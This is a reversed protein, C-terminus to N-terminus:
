AAVSKIVAFNIVCAANLPSSAHLNTIVIDFSGAAVAKTAVMITGTGAYTCSVVVVDTAAVTTNTVTFVEEAGAATTLAVTTIQGCPKSLTVGTSSNSAQTVAGGAGTAYGVGVAANNSQPGEAVFNAAAKTGINVFMTTAVSNGNVKIFRCGPAYGVGSPVTTGYALLIGASPDSAIMGTGDHLNLGHSM